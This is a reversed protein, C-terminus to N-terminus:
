RGPGAPRRVQGPGLFQQAAAVADGTDPVPNVDRLSQLLHALVAAPGVFGPLEALLGFSQPM